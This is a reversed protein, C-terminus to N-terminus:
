ATLSAATCVVWIAGLMRCNSPRLGCASCATCISCVCTSGLSYPVLADPPATSANRTRPGTENAPGAWASHVANTPADSPDFPCIGERAPDGRFSSPRSWRVTGCGSRAAPRNPPPPALTRDAPNWRQESHIPAHPQEGSRASRPYALDVPDILELTPITRARHGHDPAIGQTRSRHNTLTTHRSHM